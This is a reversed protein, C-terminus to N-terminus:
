PAVDEIRGVMEETGEAPLRKGKKGEKKKTSPTKKGKKKRSDASDMISRAEAAFRNKRASPEREAHEAEAGGAQDPHEISDQVEQEAQAEAARMTADEVELRAQEEELEKYFDKPDEYVTETMKSFAQLDIPEKSNLATLIKEPNLKEEKSFKKKILARSTGPFMKSIMMFDTGFMRLGQYFQETEEDDWISYTRVAGPKRGVTSQNVRKTLHDEDIAEGLEDAERATAANRDIVRSSEDIVMQGNVLVLREAVHPGPPPLPRGNKRAEQQKQAEQLAEKQAERRKRKVEAWDIKQMETERRSSKGFGRDKVLDAMKVEAPVIEHSEAEELTLKLRKKKTIALEENGYAGRTAEEVIEDAM